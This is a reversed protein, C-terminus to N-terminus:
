PRGGIILILLEGPGHVGLTLENEIDATRSPGTILSVQRFAPRPGPRLHADIGAAIDELEPVIDAEYLFCACVPAITAALRDEDTEDWRALTGTAAVGHDARIVGLEARAFDSLASPAFLALPAPGALLPRADRTAVIRSFGRGAAFAALFSQAEAATGFREVRAGAAVAKAAFLEIDAPRVM